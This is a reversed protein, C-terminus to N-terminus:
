RHQVEANGLVVLHKAVPIGNGVPEVLYAVAHVDFAHHALQREKLRGDVRRQQHLSHRLADVQADVAEETFLYATGMLIGVAAGRATLPAALVSVMAASRESHIGGAFFVELRGATGEDADALFDELVALQAEWLAFGTRPGIHGGCEAGEFVFRRAGAELFQRLLGPSPM